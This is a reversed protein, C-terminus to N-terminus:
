WRRWFPGFGGEADPPAGREFDRRDVPAYGPPPPPPAVEARAAASDRPVRTTRYRGHRDRVVVEVTDDNRRDRRRTDKRTSGTPLDRVAERRAPAKANAADNTASRATAQQEAAAKEQAQETAKAQAQEAAAKAQAQNALERAAKQASKSEFTMLELMEGNFAIAADAPPWVAVTEAPDPTPPKPQL